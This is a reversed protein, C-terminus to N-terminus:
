REEGKPTETVQINSQNIRYTDSARNINYKLRKRETTDTHFIVITRDKLESM